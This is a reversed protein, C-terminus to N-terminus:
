SKQMLGVILAISETPLDAKDVLVNAGIHEALTKAIEDTGLTMAVIKTQDRYERFTIPTNHPEPMQLDFLLVDLRLDKLLKIREACNAAEGVAAFDSRGNLFIKVAKCMVPSDDPILVTIPM